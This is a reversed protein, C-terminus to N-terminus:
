NQPRTKKKPTQPAGKPTQLKKGDESVEPLPSRAPRKLQASLCEQYGKDGESVLTGKETRCKKNMKIAGVPKDDSGPVKNLIEEAGGAPFTKLVEDARASNPSFFCSVLCFLGCIQPISTLKM